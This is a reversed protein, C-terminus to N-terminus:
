LPLGFRPLFEQATRVERCIFGCQQAVPERHAGKLLSAPADAREAFEEIQTCVRTKNRAAGVKFKWGKTFPASWCDVREASARQKFSSGAECVYGCVDAVFAPTVTCNIETAENHLPRTCNETQLKPQPNFFRYNICKSTNIYLDPSRYIALTAVSRQLWVHNYM